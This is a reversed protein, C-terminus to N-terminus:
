LGMQVNTNITNLDDSTSSTSTTVLNCSSFLCAAALSLVATLSTRLNM